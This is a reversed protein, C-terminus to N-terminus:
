RTQTLYKYSVGRVIKNIISRSLNYKESLERQNYLNSKYLDYVDLIIEEEWIDLKKRYKRRNKNVMDIMNEQHIGQSLHEPNICKPNDCSHLIVNGDKIKEKYFEYVIRSITKTKSNNVRAQPYGSSDGRHSVCNWCGNEDVEYEIHKFNVNNKLKVRGCELIFREKKEM